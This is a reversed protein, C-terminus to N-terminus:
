GCFTAVINGTGPHGPSPSYGPSVRVVVIKAWTGNVTTGKKTVSSAVLVGM